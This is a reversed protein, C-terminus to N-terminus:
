IEDDLAEFEELVDISDESVIASEKQLQEELLKRKQYKNYFEIAENIYKNRSVKLQDILNEADEFVQEQLRLSISKM